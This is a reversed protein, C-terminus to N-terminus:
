KLRTRSVPDYGIKKLRGERLARKYLGTMLRREYDDNRTRSLIERIKPEAFEYPMREGSHIHETLHLLYTAGNYSTSFDATEEVFADADFFRYPIQASIQEWDVWKDIFYDYQIAQEVGVKELRDVSEETPHAMLRSLEGSEAVEDPVKMYIGKVLPQELVLEDAHQEYYAKVDKEPVKEAQSSRVNRRYEAIILQRRYKEVLRNIRDMDPLTEEAFDTLLQNQIWSDVIANFLEASDEKALGPPMQVLVDRMTLVSDGMQLLVEERADATLTEHRCGALMIAALCIAASKLRLGHMKKRESPLAKRCKGSEETKDILLTVFFFQYKRGKGRFDGEFRKNFVTFFAHRCRSAGSLCASENELLVYVRLYTSFNIYM